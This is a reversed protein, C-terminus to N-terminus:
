PWAKGAAASASSIARRPKSSPAAASQAERQVEINRVALGAVTFIQRNVSYGLEELTREIYQAARELASYHRMNRPVSAIAVVHQKLRAALDDENTAPPLPGVHSQGPTILAVV